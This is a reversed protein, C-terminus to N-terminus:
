LLYSWNLLNSLWFPFTHACLSIVISCMEYPPSYFGLRKNKHLLKLMNPASNHVLAFKLYQSSHYCFFSFYTCRALKFHVLVAVWKYILRYICSRERVMTELLYLLFQKAGQKQLSRLLSFANWMVFMTPNKEKYFLTFM